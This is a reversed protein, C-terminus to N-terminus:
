RELFKVIRRKIAQNYDANEMLVGCSSRAGFVQYVSILVVHECIMVLAPVERPGSVGLSKTKM